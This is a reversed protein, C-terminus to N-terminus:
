PEPGSKKSIEEFRSVVLNTIDEITPYDFLLTSDMPINFEKQLTNRFEVASLSDLGANMLPETKSVNDNGTTREVVDRVVSEIM